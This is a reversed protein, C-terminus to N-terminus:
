LIALIGMVGTVVKEVKAIADNAKAITAAVKNTDDMAEKASATLKDLAILAEDFAVSSSELEAVIVRDLRQFLERIKINLEFVQNADDCADALRMLQNIADVLGLRITQNSM